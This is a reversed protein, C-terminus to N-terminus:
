MLVSRVDIDIVSPRSTIALPRTKRMLAGDLVAGCTYLGVHLTRFDLGLASVRSGFKMCPERERERSRLRMHRGDNPNPAGFGVRDCARPRSAIWHIGGGRGSAGM